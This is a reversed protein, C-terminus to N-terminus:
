EAKNWRESWVQMIDGYKQKRVLYLGLIAAFVGAVTTIWDGVGIQVMVGGSQSVDARCMEAFDVLSHAIITPWLNGTRLYVAGFLMGVGVAYVAQIVSNTVSAGALVNAIHILGFVLSSLWFIIPIKKEDKITRMYNAVGLGRFTIEEGFGPALCWLAAILPKGIGFSCLSVISGSIHILLFILLYSIGQKFRDRVFCGQYDPKFWGKYILAAVVAAFATFIGSASVITTGTFLVRETGYEPLVAALLSDLLGGVQEALLCFLVLIFYGLIPRDLLKHKKTGNSKEM